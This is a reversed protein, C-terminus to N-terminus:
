YPFCKVITSYKKSSCLWPSSIYSHLIFSMSSPLCCFLQCPTLTKLQNSIYSNSDLPLQTCEWLSTNSKETLPTFFFLFPSFCKHFTLSLLSLINTKQAPHLVLQSPFGHFWLQSWCGSPSLTYASLHTTGHHVNQRSFDSFSSSFILLFQPLSIHCKLSSAYALTRTKNIETYCFLHCPAM